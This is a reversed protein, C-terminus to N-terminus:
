SELDLPVHTYAAPDFSTTYPTVTFRIIRGRKNMVVCIRLKVKLPLEEFAEDWKTSSKPKLLQRCVELQPYRCAVHLSGM